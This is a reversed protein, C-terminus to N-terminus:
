YLDWNASTFSVMTLPMLWLRFWYFDIEIEMNFNYRSIAGILWMTPTEIPVCDPPEYLSMISCSLHPCWYFVLVMKKVWQLRAISYLSISRPWCQSLYHSSAMLCWAMVQVLTSKENPLNELMGRLTIELQTALSSNNQIISKFIISKHNSSCRGLALSNFWNRM